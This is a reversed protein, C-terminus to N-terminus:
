LYDKRYDKIDSKEKLDNYWQSFMSQQKRQLIQNKLNDKQAIFDNEDFTTKEILKILYYGRTGEVPKSIQGPSLAFASGIFRPERGVNQVYGSLTFFDTKQVKLNLSSAVSEFDSSSLMQDAAQQCKDKALQMAKENKLKTIIEAKVLDLSKIHEKQIEMVQLVLFGREIYFVDSVTGKKNRFVYNNIRNEMGLGPIFGGAAFPESNKVEIDEAKAITALNSEKAAEAIYSAEDRLAERTKPSASFKLLIHSAQVKSEGDEILKDTVKIIHLGFQSKVPGVIEGVSANFAAEEFPKVMAGRGFAGLDGGNKASGEDESHIKALNAFDAGERAEALLDEAQRYIAESDAQTAKLELLVYDIVRKEEEKFDVQHKEYYTNIEENTPETVDTMVESVSVFIYDAKAKLNRKMYELRAEEDTVIASARLMNDLKRMPLTMRLYEEVSVWFQDASPNELAAQYRQMDFVGTSDQFVENQKLEEPPNNYIEEVIEQNSADLKISKVVKNLLYQQILNDVVRNELQQLQYGEPETGSQQRYAALENQYRNYFEEYSIEKGDVVALVGPQRGSQFGGMGWDVVITMLFAAVLILLITKMNERMRNMLAM